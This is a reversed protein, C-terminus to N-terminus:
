RECTGGGILEWQNGADDVFNTTGAVYADFRPNAIETGGDTDLVTVAAITSGINQTGWHTAAGIEMGAQASITPQVASTIAAGVSVWTTGDTSTSFDAQSLGGGNDHVWVVRLWHWTMPEFATSITSEYTESVLADTIDLGLIGSDDLRFSIGNGDAALTCFLNFAISPYILWNDTKLLVRIDIQEEALTMMDPRVATAYIPTSMAIMGDCGTSTVVTPTDTVQVVEINALHLGRTARVTGSPVLVTSLWRDAAETRVCVYSLDDWALDRLSGIASDLAAAPLTVAAANIMLTRTFRAGGREDPRFAAVYDRDHLRVLRATDAEPFSFEEAPTGDWQMAYALIASGDQRENSTFILVSSTLRTEAGGPLTFTDTIGPAPITSAITTSWDGVFDLANVIRVRYSSAVGVRAEYDHFLPSDISGLQAITRWTPDVVDSRQLEYYGFVDFISDAVTTATVVDYEASYPGSTNAADVMSRFGVAGTAFTADSASIIATIADNEDLAAFQITTGIARVRLRVFFLDMITTTALVTPVGAVVLEITMTVATGGVVDEKAVTCRYHNSTDTYRVVAGMELPGDAYTRVSDDILFMIEVDGIAAGATSYLTAGGASVAHRGDGGSVSFDAAVGGTCTWAGGVDANGWAAAVTREFGDGVLLTPTAPQDWTVTHYYVGTPICSPTRGDCGVVPSLEATDIAVTLDTPQPPEQSILVTCDVNAYETRTTTSPTYTATSYTEGAPAGYTATANYGVAPAGFGLADAALIHWQQDETSASSSWEVQHIQGATLVPTFDPSLRLTVERWGDVIEPLALFDLGIIQASALLTGGDDDYISVILPRPTATFVRAYFRIWTYANPLSRTVDIEQILIRDSWVYGLYNIGYPHMNTLIADDDDYITLHPLVDTSSTVLTPSDLATVVRRPYSTSAAVERQAAIAARWSASSVMVGDHAPMPYLQRLANVVPTTGSTALPGITGVKATVIYSDTSLSPAAVLDTGRLIISNLQSETTYPNSAPGSWPDLGFSTAGYAIRQEACYVVELAVYGLYLSIGSDGISALGDSEIMIGYRNAGAAVMRLLEQQRWPLRESTLSWDQTPYDWWPNLEGCELRKPATAVDLNTYAEVTGAEAYPYTDVTADLSGPGSGIMFWPSSGARYDGDVLGLQGGIIYLLNVSLIRKDALVTTFTGVDFHLRLTGTGSFKMAWGDSPHNLAEEETAPGGAAPHLAVDGSRVGDSVPIVVRQVPGSREQAGDPYIAMLLTQGRIVRAPESELYVVGTTAAQNGDGRFTHGAETAQDLAFPEPRIPAWCPGIIGPAWPEYEGM